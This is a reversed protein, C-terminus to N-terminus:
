KVAESRRNKWKNKLQEKQENTLLAEMDDRHKKMLSKMQEKKEDRTLTTNQHLTQINNRFTNNLDKMKTSQEPTLHLDKTMEEFREGRMKEKDRKAFEQRLDKAQERQEPTLIAKIKEKHEKALAKRKEKLEEPSLSKNNNLDQMQQRFNQNIDKVQSKQADTLNLEKFNNKNNHNQSNNFEKHSSTSDKTQANSSFGIALALIALALNKM